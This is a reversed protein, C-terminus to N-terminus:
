KFWWSCVARLPKCIVLDEWYLPSGSFAWFYPTVAQQVNVFQDHLSTKELPIDLTVSTSYKITDQYPVIMNLQVPLVTGAPLVIDAPGNITIIGAAIKVSARQVRTDQTLTVDTVQTIPIRLDLPVELNIPVDAHITAQDMLAYNAALGGLMDRIVMRKLTFIERSMLIVVAILIANVVLSLTSTVNWYAPAVKEPQFSLWSSRPKQSSNDGKAAALIARLRLGPNSGKDAPQPAAETKGEESAQTEPKPQEALPEILELPKM